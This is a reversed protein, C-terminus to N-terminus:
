TAAADLGTGAYAAFTAHPPNRVHTARGKGMMMMMMMMVDAKHFCFYAHTLAFKVKLTRIAQLNRM